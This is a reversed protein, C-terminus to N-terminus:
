NYRAFQKANVVLINEKDSTMSSRFKDVAEQADKLTDAAERPTIKVNLKYDAKTRKQKLEHLETSLTQAEKVRSNSLCAQVFFHVDKKRKSVVGLKSLYERFYLFIAYYSRGISTRLDSEEDSDKLKEATKFFEEPNL